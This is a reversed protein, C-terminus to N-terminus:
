PMYTYGTDLARVALAPYVARIANDYMAQVHVAPVVYDGQYAVTAYFRYSVSGEAPLDFYTYVADDRIDQYAFSSSGNGTASALRDNGIEWCTPIPFTLAINEIRKAQLNEVTITVFFSDGMKIDALSVEEGDSNAYAVHMGIYEEQKKETGPVSIGHSTLIGYLMVKGTNMIEAVQEDGAGASLTEIISTDNLIGNQTKGNAAVSYSCSSAASNKHYPLLACLLWATEQTSLWDDSSLTAAVTRAAKAAKAQDQLLTCVMLYLAQMRISSGYSGGTYRYPTQVAFIDSLVDAFVDEAAENRGILAYSAALLLSASSDRKENKLRNMAGINPSGALALTFLRYAQIEATEEGYNEWDAAESSLWAILPSTLSAPVTYGYKQAETLFHLVYCSGWANANSQGQWYAFGGAGTQYHPYREIVSKVHRQVRITEEPSLHTFNALYLQPFAGSTIQEICGHPYTILYDLRNALNLSPVSSLELSLNTTGTEYPSPVRVSMKESPKLTFPTHYRVPVGRPKVEVSTVSQASASGATVAATFRATGANETQITFTLTADSAAPIDLRKEQVHSPLAGATRLVVRAHQVTDTGNFVTVPVELRENTGITRPLATQVMVDAKVPITKEATGYAGNYGAVAIARVAGVYEPMRFSLQKKEGAALTFPGLYQVVPRFRNVKQERENSAYEGGGIALLTELKGSYANMVYKYIDWSSLQSAEKKYFERGLDPGHYNTLGLLGEDVIALTFTMPKGNQESISVVARENPAYVAPATILPKLKTAPNNVMVPVIGYLRIPLSNATQLHQQLLTVHVYVNPAMSETLALTYSTSDKATILWDQSIIEGNKEVTVLARGGASSAFSVQATEGTSYQKKDTILTLMAAGGSGSEQARGAWGPWDIYVVQAASHGRKGDSVTVLYRGWAPYKVEFQFRGRGNSLAVTGEAIKSASRSSVYTADTLADKEWWWKWELKHITYSLEAAPVPTGDQYLLLVDATHATDTLLMGRVTDGKPLRLGVYREYPSYPYSSGTSSVGGAPEFIRSVFHATLMGPVPSQEGITFEETFQATSSADLSGEWITSREVQIEVSPNTFSFDPYGFTERIPTFFVAVDADYYPVAAGHLWAGSLTFSNAGRTLIRKKPELKVALRNPVVTEVRLPRTWEQGGIKVRAQWLGTVSEAATRTEIPYFGNVSHTLTRSETIRGLPDVLDFSVPIDQPLTKQEDQLVFTLYLPDGPRWVGREGYIFGKVGGIVKEGGTEFHSISLSTGEGIKLYSTQGQYEAAIFLTSAADAFVVFGNKDSRSSMKKSGAYSYATIEAGSVPQATKIDAVTIYLQGSATKKAMIGLDSVLINRKILSKSNFRSMYFAPHYPNDKYSWYTDQEGSHVNEWYNWASREAPPADSDIMDPVDPLSAFDEETKTPSRYKINKKRFSIRIQFMGKPYKKVLASVDIGRPIYTNQMSDDWDFSVNQTWVPEGVRYLENKGDLENVQLFQAINYDYIAFAQILLGNLNRTEVPLVTGQSSPLVTGKTAFRVSPIDWNDALTIHKEAALYTGNSSKLGNAIRIQKIDQWNTDDYITLVNGRVSLAAGKSQTGDAKYTSIFAEINEDTDIAKSFSVLVTNRKSTNVDVVSFVDKAPIGFSKEGAFMRDQKQSLGLSSGQWAVVLQQEKETIGINNILFRRVTKASGQEWVLTHTKKFFGSTKATVCRQIDEEAVPIDTTISGSLSYTDELQNLTLPSLTVTYSPTAVLFLQRYTGHVSEKGFLQACDASLIIRAGAPYPTSPTFVATRSDQLQWSGHQRPSFQLVKNPDEIIDCAFSVAIPDLRGINTPSVATIYAETGNDPMSNRTGTCGSFCLAACLFLALYSTRQLVSRGARVIFNGAYKQTIPVSVAKMLLSYLAHLLLTCDKCLTFPM